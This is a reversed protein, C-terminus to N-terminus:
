VVSGRVPLAGSLARLAQAAHQLTEGLRQGRGPAFLRMGPFWPRAGSGLWTWDRGGVRWVPVGLAGALEGVSVAPTIVLDLAAALAAVGELDDRLDLDRWRYLTTGFRTEAATM